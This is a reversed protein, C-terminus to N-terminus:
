RDEICSSPRAEGHEDGLKGVSPRAGRKKIVSADFGLHDGLSPQGQSPERCARTLMNDKTQGEKPYAGGGWTAMAFDTIAIIPQM